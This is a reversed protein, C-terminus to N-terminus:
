YGQTKLQELIKDLKSDFDQGEQIEEQSEENEQTETGDENLSEQEEFETVSVGHEYFIQRVVNDVGELKDCVENIMLDQNLNELFLQSGREIGDTMAENVLEVFERFM